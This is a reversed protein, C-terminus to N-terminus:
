EALLGSHFMKNKRKEMARIIGDAARMVRAGEFVSVGKQKGELCSSVFASLEERLPDGSKWKYIKGRFGQGGPICIGEKKNIWHMRRKQFNASLYGHQSFVRLRREQRFSIRSVMLTAVCGNEFNIRANAIDEWPSSVAAGLAEIHEISSGVLALVMDLDHTMMDLVVSVDTGRNRYPAMRLTEIYLPASIKETILKYSPSFRLLHGVQCISQAKSALNELQTAEGVTQALPKEIFVHKNAKLVASAQEYHMKAPSAIIIADCCTIMEQLTGIVATGAERAIKQARRLDLDCVGVLDVNPMQSLKLAHFRGFYGVGVVGVRLSSM